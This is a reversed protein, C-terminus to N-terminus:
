VGIGGECLTIRVGLYEVRGNPEGDHERGHVAGRASSTMANSYVATFM